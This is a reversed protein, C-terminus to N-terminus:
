EVLDFTFQINVWNMKYVGGNRTQKLWSPSREYIVDAFNASKRVWGGMWGSKLHMFATNFTLLVLFKRCGGM